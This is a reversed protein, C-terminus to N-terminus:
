KIRLKNSFCLLGSCWWVNTYWHPSSEKMEQRGGRINEEGCGQLLMWHHGSRRQTWIWSLILCGLNFTQSRTQKTMVVLHYGSLPTTDQINKSSVLCQVWISLSCVKSKTNNWLWLVGEGWYGDRLGGTVWDQRQIYVRWQSLKFFWLVLCKRVEEEINEGM